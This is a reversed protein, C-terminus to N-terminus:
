RQEILTKKESSFIEQKSKKLDTVQFYFKHLNNFLRRWGFRDADDTLQLPLVVDDFVALNRQLGRFLAVSISFENEIGAPDCVMKECDVEHFANHPLNNISKIIKENINFYLFLYFMKLCFEVRPEVSFYLM